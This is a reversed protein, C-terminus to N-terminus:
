IVFLINNVRQQKNSWAFDMIMIDGKENLNKPYIKKDLICNLDYVCVHDGLSDLTFIRKM